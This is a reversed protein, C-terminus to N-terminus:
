MEHRRPLMQSRCTPTVPPHCMRKQRCWKCVLTHLMEGEVHDRIHWMVYFPGPESSVATATAVAPRTDTQMEEGGDDDHGTGDDRCDSTARRRVDNMVDDDDDREFLPREPGREEQDWQLPRLPASGAM